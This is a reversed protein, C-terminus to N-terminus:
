MLLVVKVQVVVRVLKIGYIQDFETGEHRTLVTETVWATVIPSAMATEVPSAAATEVIGAAPMGGFTVTDIAEEPSVTM